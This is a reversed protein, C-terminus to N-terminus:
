GRDRPSPSTYLLCSPPRVAEAIEMITSLVTRAFNSRKKDPRPMKYKWAGVEASVCVTLLMKYKVAGVQALGSHSLSHSLVLVRAYVPVCKPGCRGVCAPETVCMPVCM